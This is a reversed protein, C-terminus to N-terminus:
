ASSKPFLSALTKLVAEPQEVTLFHGTDPLVVYYGLPFAKRTATRIADPAVKDENGWIFLVPCDPLKELDGEERYNPRSMVVYQQGMFIHDYNKAPDLLDARAQAIFDKNEALFNTGFVARLMTDAVQTFRGAQIDAVQGLRQNKKEANDSEASTGLFAIGKIRKMDFGTQRMLRLMEFLVYGGMSHGFLYIGNTPAVRGIEDLAFQALHQITSNSPVPYLASDNFNILHADYATLVAEYTWPGTLIGPLM